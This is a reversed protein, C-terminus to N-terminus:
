NIKLNGKIHATSFKAPTMRHQQQNSVIETQTIDLQDGSASTPAMPPASTRKFFLIINNFIIM